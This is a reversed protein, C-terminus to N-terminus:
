KKLDNAKCQCRIMPQGCGSCKPMAPPQSNQKPKNTNNDETM